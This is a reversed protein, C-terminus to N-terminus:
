IRENNNEIEYTRRLEMLEGYRYNFDSVPRVDALELLRSASHRVDLPEASDLAIRRVLKMRDIPAFTNDESVEGKEKGGYEPRVFTSEKEMVDKEIM